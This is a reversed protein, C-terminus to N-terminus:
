PTTQRLTPLDNIFKKSKIKNFRSSHCNLLAFMFQFSALELRTSPFFTLTFIILVLFTFVRFSLELEDALLM